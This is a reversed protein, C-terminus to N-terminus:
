SNPRVLYELSNFDEDMMEHAFKRSIPLWRKHYFYQTIENFEYGLEKLKEEVTM